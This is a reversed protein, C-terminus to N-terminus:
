GKRVKATDAFAQGLHDPSLESEEVIGLKEVAKSGVGCGLEELIATSCEQEANSLYWARM